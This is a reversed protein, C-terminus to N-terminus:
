EQATLDIMFLYASAGDAAAKFILHLSRGNQVWDTEASLKERLARRVLFRHRQPLAQSLDEPSIKMVALLEHSARNMFLVKGKGDLKVMAIPLVESLEESLAPPLSQNELM